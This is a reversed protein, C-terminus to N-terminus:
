VVSKRDLSDEVYVSEFFRKDNEIIHHKLLSLFMRNKDKPIEDGDLSVIVQYRMKKVGKLNIQNSWMIDGNKQRTM